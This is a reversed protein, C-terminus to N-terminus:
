QLLPLLLLPPPLPLFPLPPLLPFPLPLIPLQSLLFFILLLLLLPVFPVLPRFVFASKRQPHFLPLLLLHLLLSSLPFLLPPPLPTSPPPLPASPVLIRFVNALPIPPFVALCSTTLSSLLLPQPPLPPLREQPKHMPPLLPSVCPPPPAIPPPPPFPSPPPSSKLPPLAKPNSSNDRPPPPHSLPSFLPLPPSLPTVM